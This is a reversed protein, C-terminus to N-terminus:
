VLFPPSFRRDAFYRIADGITQIREAEGDPITLGFEEELEM